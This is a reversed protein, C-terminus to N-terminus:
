TVTFTYMTSVGDDVLTIAESIVVVSDVRVTLQVSQSSGEVCANYFQVYVVYQGPPALDVPWFINEVHSGTEIGCSPIDDHDLQGGTSSEKAGFMTEEGNPEVVHLDMDSDGSWILTAQVYGSGLVVVPPVTTTPTTSTTPTTPACLLDRTDSQGGAAATTYERYLDRGLQAGMRDVAYEVTDTQIDGSVWAEEWRTVTEPRPPWFTGLQNTDRFHQYAFAYIATGLLHYRAGREDGNDGRVIEMVNQISPSNRNDRLVDHALVLAQFPDGGTETMALQILMELTFDRPGTTSTGGAAAFHAKLADEIRTLAGAPANSVRTTEFGLYDFLTGASPLAAANFSPTTGCLVARMVGDTVREAPGAALTALAQEYQGPLTAASPNSWVNGFIRGIFSRSFHPVQFLLVGNAADVTATDLVEWGSVSEMLVVPLTGEPFDLLDLPVSVMASQNLALANPGFEIVPGTFETLSALVLSGFVPDLLTNDNDLAYNALASWVDVDEDALGLIEGSRGPSTSITVQTDAALAGAPVLMSIGGGVADSDPITVVGGDAGIVEGAEEGSSKKPEDNDRTVVFVGVGVLVVLAVVIALGRKSAPKRPEATSGTPFQPPPWNM